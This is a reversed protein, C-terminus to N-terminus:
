EKEQQIALLRIRDMLKAQTLKTMSGRNEPKECEAKIAELKVEEYLVLIKWQILIEKPAIASLGRNFPLFWANIQRSLEKERM